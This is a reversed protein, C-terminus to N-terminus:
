NTISIVVEKNALAIFEQDQEISRDVKFRMTIQLTENPKLHYKKSCLCEYRIWYKQFINPTIEMQPKFEVARESTNIINYTISNTKGTLTILHPTNANIEIDPNKSISVFILSVEEKGKIEPLYSSIYIPQCKNSFNCFYNYPQLAIFALVILAIIYAAIKKNSIIKKAFNNSM